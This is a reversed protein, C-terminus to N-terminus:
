PHAVLHLANGAEHRVRIAIQLSIAYCLCTHAKVVVMTTTTM